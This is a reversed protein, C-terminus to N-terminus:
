PMIKEGRQKKREREVDLETEDDSFDHKHQSEASGPVPLRIMEYDSSDRTSRTEIGLSEMIRSLLIIM